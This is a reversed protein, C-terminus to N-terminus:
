CKQLAPPLIEDRHRRIFNAVFAEFLQNMDFVFAFMSLDDAALQIAGGDLFLRALNLLPAYRQNLRTLLTSSADAASVFSLLSVEDMLQRLDGLLRRDN